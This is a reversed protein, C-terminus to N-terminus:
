LKPITKVVPTSWLSCSTTSLASSFSSFSVTALIFCPVTSLWDLLRIGGEKDTFTHTYTAAIGNCSRHLNSNFRQMIFSRFLHLKIAWLLSNFVTIETYLRFTCNNKHYFDLQSSMAHCLLFLKCTSVRWPFHSTLIPTKKCQQTYLIVHAHIHTCTCTPSKYRWSTEDKPLSLRANITHTIHCTHSHTHRVRIDDLHRM